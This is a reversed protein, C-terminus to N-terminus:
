ATFSVCAAINKLVCCGVLLLKLFIIGKSSAFVTPYATKASALLPIAFAIPLSSYVGLRFLWKKNKKALTPLVLYTFILMVGGSSSLVLGIDSSSLGFGGVRGDLKFFLPITEEWLIFAMALLGYNCTVLVVSRSTLVNGTRRKKRDESRSCSEDKQLRRRLMSNQPTDSSEITTDGDYEDLSTFKNASSATDLLTRSDRNRNQVDGDYGCRFLCCECQDDDNETIETDHDDESLNEETIEDNDNSWESVPLDTVSHNSKHVANITPCKIVLALDIATSSAGDIGSCVGDADFSHKIEEKGYKEADNTYGSHDSAGVSNLAEYPINRGQEDSILFKDRIYHRSKQLTGGINLLALGLLSNANRSDKTKSDATDDINYFLTDRASEGGCLENLDKRNTPKPTASSSKSIDFQSVRTEVMFLQCTVASVVNFAFCIVCPLLYPYIGFIGSQTFFEPYKDAPKCLLGGALPAVITGLAWAVSMYSFGAGRNSEDTIETLFSKLVGLNGSLLGSIIRGVLASSYNTASGFILMGIAAGLTGIAIAPKRGYKDSFVGWLISSCFQAGCFSAALGGAYYGLKSGGYGLDEVM